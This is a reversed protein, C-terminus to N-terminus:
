ENIVDSDKPETSDLEKLMVESEKVKRKGLAERAKDGNDMYHQASVLPIMAIPDIPLDRVTIMLRSCNEYFELAESLMAHDARLEEVQKQLELHFKSIAEYADIAAKTDRLFFAHASSFIDQSEFSEIRSKIRQIRKDYDCISYSVSEQSDSM